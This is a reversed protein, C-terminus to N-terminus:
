AMKRDRRSVKVIPDVIPHMAGLGRPNLNPWPSIQKPDLEWEYLHTLVAAAMLVEQEAIFRGSCVGTGGGFPRLSNHQRKLQEAAAIGVKSGDEAEPELWRWPNFKDPESFVEPDFHLVKTPVLMVSGRKVVYGQIDSDHSVVRASASTVGLRLLEKWLAAIFPHAAFQGVNFGDIGGEAMFTDVIRRFESLVEPHQLLSNM